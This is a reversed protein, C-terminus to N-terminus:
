RLPQLAILVLDAYELRKMVQPTDACGGAARGPARPSGNERVFWTQFPLLADDTQIHTPAPQDSMPLIAPQIHFQQCLHRTVATLTEGQALLHTRLLHLAM